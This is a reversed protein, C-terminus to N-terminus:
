SKLTAILRQIDAATIGADRTADAAAGPKGSRVEAILSRRESRSLGQAALIQELRRVALVSQNVAKAKADEVVQDAPLFSDAFGNGIADAGSIWTENDMMKDIAKRDQGTRAAYVDAMAADFPELWEAADKLDHRNGMAMVWANHVMFFGARAIEIADGAMAIVSAASAAIAMVRVTVERPHARLLNYIAIGEFLDGGPSNINVIVDRDGIWRLAAAVRKATVGNGSWPDEGIVDYVSITNDGEDAARVASNWRALIEHSPEFTIGTPREFARVEPLTRKSM